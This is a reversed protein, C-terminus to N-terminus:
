KATGWKVQRSAFANNNAGVKIGVYQTGSYDGYWACPAPILGVGNLMIPASYYDAEFAAKSVADASTYNAPWETASNTRFLYYSSYFYYKYGGLSEPKNLIFASSSEDTENWDAQAGIANKPTKKIDGNEEILVNAESIPTETLTVDSLKTFNYAM